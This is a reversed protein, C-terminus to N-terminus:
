ESAVQGAKGTEFMTKVNWNGIKTIHKPNMISATVKQDEKQSKGLLTMRNSRARM